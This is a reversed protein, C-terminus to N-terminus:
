LWEYWGGMSWWEDDDRERADHHNSCHPLHPQRPQPPLLHTLHPRIALSFARM